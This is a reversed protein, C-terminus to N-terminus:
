KKDNRGNAKSNTRPNVDKDDSILPRKHAPNPANEPNKM